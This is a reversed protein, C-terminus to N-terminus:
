HTAPALDLHAAGVVLLARVDSWLPATQGEPTSLPSDTLRAYYPNAALTQCLGWVSDHADAMEWCDYARPPLRARVRAPTGVAYHHPDERTNGHGTLLPRLALRRAQRAAEPTAPDFEAALGQTILVALISDVVGAPVPDLLARLAARDWPGDLAESGGCLATWVTGILHPALAGDLPAPLDAPLVHVDSGLRVLDGETRRGLSFGLPFLERSGTGNSDPSAEDPRAPNTRTPDSM